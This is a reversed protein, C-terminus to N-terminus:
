RRYFIREYNEILIKPNIDKKKSHKQNYENLYAEYAKLVDEPLPNAKKLYKKRKLFSILKNYDIKALMYENGTKKYIIIKIRNHILKVAFFLIVLLAIVSASILAVSAVNKGNLGLKGFFLNNNLFINNDNTEDENDTTTLPTNVRLGRFLATLDFLDNGNEEDLSPITAEFPVFGYGDMYIEVWAHAYSDNVDVSIVGSDEILSEGTYWKDYEDNTLTGNEYVLSMPVSYGECYRAPIGMQRLLLTEASAFHACFGRHQTSLFYEVYDRKSPTSGPSMTYSFNNIFYSYVANAARIRERNINEGDSSYDIEEIVENLIEELEAPVQLCDTYVYERYLENDLNDDPLDIYYETQNLCPTYYLTTTEGVSFSPEDSKTNNGKSFYPYLVTSGDIDLNTIDMRAYNNSPYKSSNYVTEFDDFPVYSSFGQDDSSYIYGDSVWTNANYTTGTFGKVYFTEYNHPAFTITFDPEFDPRVQGIGGLRGSALGGTASYANLFGSIGSQIFIKLYEDTTKHINNSPVKSTESEYFAGFFSCLVLSLISSVIISFIVIKNNGQYYYFAKQGRKIRAFEHGHRTKVQMRSHRSFQLFTVTLYVILLLYLYIINPHKNIYFAVEFFPFTLLITEFVNMYGSITINLLIILLFGVFLSAVTVSIERNEIFEHAQRVSMLGFYDSYEEYIINVVAQFGSNAHLFYRALEITFIIFYIIYGVYFYIKNLYIFAMAFSFIFYFAFIVSPYCPVDFASLLGMVASFSSLFILLGKFVCLLFASKKHSDKIEGILVHNKNLEKKNFASEIKTLM